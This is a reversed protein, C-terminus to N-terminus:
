RGMYSGRGKHQATQGRVDACRNFIAGSIARHEIRCELRQGLHERPREPRYQPLRDPEGRDQDDHDADAEIAHQYPKRTNGLAPGLLREADGGIHRDGHEGPHQRESGRDADDHARHQQHRGDGRQHRAQEHVLDAGLDLAAV